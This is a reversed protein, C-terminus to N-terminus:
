GEFTSTSTLTSPSPATVEFGRGGPMRRWSGGDKIQEALYNQEGVQGLLDQQQYQSQNEVDAVRSWREGPTRL